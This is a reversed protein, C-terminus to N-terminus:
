VCEVIGVPHDNIVSLQLVVKAKVRIGKRAEAKAIKTM